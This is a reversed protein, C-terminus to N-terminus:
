QNCGWIRLGSLAKNFAKCWEIREEKTDASLLHRVITKDGKLITTLTEKDGEYAMRETEILFTHLRACIDRSVPGIEKTVSSKLNLSDIPASKREDDPYKWYSLTDGKLLCWRRHWAGFGSVDEFMTLFGRHEVSINLECTVKMEVSGELPSMSPTKNLSWSTRNIAQISFVVYGMLAFTPSRVANPGAPSEKPVRIMRSDQKNKKPTLKNSKKNIHYKVEHPLFEEQAQLCYVEFTATFDSYINDLRVYGPINLELDPSKSSSAVTSVLQTSVVQEGCKILCVVHHGKGGAAALARM